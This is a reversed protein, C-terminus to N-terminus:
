FDLSTAGSGLYEVANAATVIRARDIMDQETIGHPKTYARCAWIHGGNAVLSQMVERLPPFGEHHIPNAYGGTALWVGDITLLVVAEAERLGAPMLAQFMVQPHLCAAVHAFDRQALAELCGV